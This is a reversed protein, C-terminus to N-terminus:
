NENKLRSLAADIEDQNSQRDLIPKGPILEKIQVLINDSLILDHVSTKTELLEELNTKVGSDYTGEAPGYCSCHGLDKVWVTGNNELLVATGQGEYGDISYEYVVWDFNDPDGVLETIENSNLEDEGVSVIRMNGLFEKIAM